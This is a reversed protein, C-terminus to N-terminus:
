GDGSGLDLVFDSAKVQALSLMAEVVNPPTTVYPVDLDEGHSLPAAALLGALCARHALASPRQLRMRAGHPHHRPRRSRRHAGFRVRAARRSGAGYAPRSPTARGSFGA